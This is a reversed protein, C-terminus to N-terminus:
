IVTLRTVAFESDTKTSRIRVQTFGPLHLAEQLDSNM